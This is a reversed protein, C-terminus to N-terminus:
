SHTLATFICRVQFKVESVSGSSKEELLEEYSALLTTQAQFQSLCQRHRHRDKPVATVSCRIVKKERREEALQQLRLGNERQKESKLRKEEESLM